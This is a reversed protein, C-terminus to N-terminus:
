AERIWASEEIMDGVDLRQHSFVRKLQHTDVHEIDYVYERPSDPNSLDVGEEVVAEIGWTLINESHKATVKWKASM